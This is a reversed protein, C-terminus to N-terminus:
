QKQWVLSGTGGADSMTKGDESVDLGRSNNTGASPLAMGNLEEIMLNVHNGQVTYKGKTEGAKHIIFTGDAKFEADYSTSTSDDKATWKGVVDASKATTSSSSTDESKPGCGVLTFVAVIFVIVSKMTIVLRDSVFGISGNTIHPQKSGQSGVDCPLM